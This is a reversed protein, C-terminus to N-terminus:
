DHKQNQLTAEIETSEEVNIDLIALNWSVSNLCRGDNGWLLTILEFRYKKDCRVHNPVSANNEEKKHYILLTVLFRYRRHYRRYM